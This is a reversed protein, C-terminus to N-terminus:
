ATAAETIAFQGAPQQGLCVSLEHDLLWRKRDLGGGYGTLSGNSGIVRHCPVIVGIPNSGNALGVARVAKPRGIKEALKGYTTATGGPIKRLENWVARQFPTGTTEVPINDIVGTEGAFYRDVTDRLGHFNSVAELTFGNKGYYRELLRLMRPEYDNWDVARLRGAGDAVLLMEGIPTKIRDMFFRLTNFM